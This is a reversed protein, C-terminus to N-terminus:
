HPLERLHVLGDRLEEITERLEENREKTVTHGEGILVIVFVRPNDAFREVTFEVAEFPVLKDATGHIVVIPCRIHALRPELLQVQEQSAFMELTARQLFDALFPYVIFSGALRQFWLVEELDANLSGAVIILGGVRDPYDAALRAAIPGGLSHGVVIPWLGGRQVLLPAIAAAQEEFSVVVEDPESRGYGLRDVALTEFGAVPARLYPTYSTSNGPSGHIFILRQDRGDGDILYSLARGEHGGVALQERRLGTEDGTYDLGLKCGSLLCLGLYLLVGTRPALRPM